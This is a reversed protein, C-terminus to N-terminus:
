LDPESGLHEFALREVRLLESQIRETAADLEAEGGDRAVFVPEGYAVAIRARPKPVNFSDWTGLRWTESPVFGTPLVPFGTARAMWALGPNMSHRPGRPGDPTIAVTSGRELATLMKRLAQAGGRSASGRITEYGFGHLLAESLDGDESGSVLITFDEGIYAPISALMRGHWLALILGGGSKGHGQAAERHEVNLSEYRWTRALLKMISPSAARLPVRALRRFFVKVRRGRTM